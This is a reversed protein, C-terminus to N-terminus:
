IIIIKDFGEELTPMTFWKVMKQLLYAPITKGPRSLLRRKHEEPDPIPFVVAIKCYDKTLMSLKKRRSKVTLSTQDWIINQKLSVALVADNAMFKVANPMAEAWVEDYTKGQLAAYTEVHQDTSVVTFSEELTQNTIWTSKGCAPLGVLIYCNPM